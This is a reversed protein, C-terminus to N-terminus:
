RPRRVAHVQWSKRGCSAPSPLRRMAAWVEMLVELFTTKGSNPGLLVILLKLTVLGASAAVVGIFRVLEQDGLWDLM